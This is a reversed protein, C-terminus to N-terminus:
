GGGGGGGGSADEIAVKGGIAAVIVFCVVLTLQGVLDMGASHIPMAYMDPDLNRNWLLHTLARAVFLSVSVQINFVFLPYLITINTNHHCAAPSPLSPPLRVALCFGLGAASIM